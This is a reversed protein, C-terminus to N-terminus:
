EYYIYAYFEKGDLITAYEIKIIKIINMGKIFDDVRQHLRESSEDSIIEIQKKTM